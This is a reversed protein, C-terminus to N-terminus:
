LPPPPALDPEVWDRRAGVSFLFERSYFRLPLARDGMPSNVVAHRLRDVPADGQRALEAAVGRMYLRTLTEHYGETDSNPTRVAENHARIRRRVTALAEAYPHRSVYWVAALLHAHHTWEARPLECAEFRAIFAAIGDATM